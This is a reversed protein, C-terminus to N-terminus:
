LEANGARDHTAGPDIRVVRGNEVIVTSPGRAPAAADVIVRGAQIAFSEASATTSLGLALVAAFIRITM